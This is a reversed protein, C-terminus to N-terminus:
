CYDWGHLTFRVFGYFFSATELLAYGFSIIGILAVAPLVGAFAHLIWAFTLLVGAFARLFLCSGLSSSIFNVPVPTTCHEM